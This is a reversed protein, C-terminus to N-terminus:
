DAASVWIEADEAGGCGDTTGRGGATRAGSLTETSGAAPRVPTMIGSLRFFEGEVEGALVSSGGMTGSSVERARITFLTSGSYGGRAIGCRRSPGTTRWAYMPWSPLM